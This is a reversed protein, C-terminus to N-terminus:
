RLPVIVAAERVPKLAAFDTSPTVFTRQMLYGRATPSEVLTAGIARARAIAAADGAQVLAIRYPQGALTEGNVLYFHVTRGDYITLSWYTDPSASGTLLLPGQSLDYAARSAVIDPNGLPVWSGKSGSLVDAHVWHNAPTFRAYAKQMVAHPVYWIMAHYGVAASVLLLAALALPWRRSM